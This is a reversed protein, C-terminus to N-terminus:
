RNWPPAGMVITGQAPPGPTFWRAPLVGLVVLLLVIITLAAFEPDRLDDHRRREGQPPGFLLNQVLDFLYWSAALWAIMVVFLGGSWHFSPALLMGFFGAFVGFPPLGLAALALFSLVITFRPMHPALGSLGRLGIEGYRGQLLFSALLLGSTALGVASVYVLTPSGAAQTRVLYWWLISLFALSGYATVSAPRAQALARISGYLCGALALMGAVDLGFSPWQLLTPALGHFGIVPLLVALFAPLNGPLATLAALYGTHFPVLPLAVACALVFAISSLPPATVTSVLVATVALGFTGIARWQPRGTPQQFRLLMVALTALLLGFCLTAFATELTLAGLGLGLLWLTCLWAPGHRPHLPQGLLSVFATIPLLALLPLGAAESPLQGATWGLTGLTAMTALLLWVKLADPQGRFALGVTASIVPV